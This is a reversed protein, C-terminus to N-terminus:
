QLPSMSTPTKAAPKQEQEVEFDLPQHATVKAKIEENVQELALFREATAPHTTAAAPNESGPHAGAMRRWFNAAGDTDYGARAMLYLGVYDVEREFDPGYAQAGIKSFAGQTNVGAGAALIDLLLGIFINGRQKDQHNMLNHAVEHGVIIALETDTDVFRMMGSTVVFAPGTALANIQDSNLVGFEYDCITSLGSEVEKTGEPTVFTLRVTDEETASIEKLKERVKRLSKEGPPVKWDNIAILTDGVKTGTEKLPSGDPIVVVTATEGIGRAALASQYEKGFAYKNVLMAAFTKMTNGECLDANKELIPWAVDILQANLKIQEDIVIQRQKEAEAEAAEKSVKPMKSVPACATLTVVLVTALLVAAKRWRGIHPRQRIRAGM